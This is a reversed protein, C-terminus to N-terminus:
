HRVRQILRGVEERTPNLALWRGHDGAFRDTLEDIHKPEAAQQDSPEKEEPWKLRGALREMRLFDEIAFRTIRVSLRQEFQQYRKLALERM